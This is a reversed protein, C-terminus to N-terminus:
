CQAGHERYQWHWRGDSAAWATARESEARFGGGLNAAFLRGTAAPMAAIRALLEVSSILQTREVSQGGSDQWAEYASRLSPARDALRADAYARAFALEPSIWRDIGATPPGSTSADMRGRAYGLAERMTESHKHSVFTTDAPQLETM